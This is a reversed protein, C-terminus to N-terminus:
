KLKLVGNSVLEGVGKLKSTSVFYDLAKTWDEVESVFRQDYYGNGSSTLGKMIANVVKQIDAFVVVSGVGDKLSSVARKYENNMSVTNVGYESLFEPHLAVVLVNMNAERKIGYWLDFVFDDFCERKETLDEEKWFKEPLKSMDLRVRKMNGNELTFKELYDNMDVSYTEAIMEDFFEDFSFSLSSFVKEAKALDRDEFKLAVSFAPLFKGIDNVSFAYPNDFVFSIEDKELGTLGSLELYLEDMLVSSFVAGLSGKMSQDETYYILDKGPMKNALSLSKNRYVDVLKTDTFNVNSNFELVDNSKPLLAFNLKSIGKYFDEMGLDDLNMYAFSFIDEFFSAKMDMFLLNEDVDKAFSRNKNDELNKVAKERNELSNTLFFLDGYRTLYFDEKESSWYIFAGDVKCKMDDAFNLALTKKLINYFKDGDSVRSSVFVAMDNSWINLKDDFFKMGLVVEFDDIMSESLKWFNNEDRYNSGFSSTIFESLGSEPFKKLMSEFNDRLNGESYNLSMMLSLDEPLVNLYSYEKFSINSKYDCGDFFMPVGVDFPARYSYRKVGRDKVSKLRYLLEAVDARTMEAIAMANAEYGYFSFLSNDIVFGVYEYYWDSENLDDYWSMFYSDGLSIEEKSYYMHLAMKFAEARSVCQGPRFTGDGYGEVVGLARATKVFPVYWEGDKMDSFLEAEYANENFNLTKFLMKLFEVRNVCNDPKFTGDEYGSVIGNRHMWSIEESRSDYAGVDSFVGDEEEFGLAMLAIEEDGLFEYEANEDYIALVNTSLM